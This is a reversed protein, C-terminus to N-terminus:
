MHTTWVWCRDRQFTSPTMGLSLKLCTRFSLTCGMEFPIYVTSQTSNVYYRYQLLEKRKDLKLWNHCTFLEEPLSWTSYSVFSFSKLNSSFEGKVWNSISIVTHITSKHGQLQHKCASQKQTDKNRKTKRDIIWRM